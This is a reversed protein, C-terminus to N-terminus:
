TKKEVGLAAMRGNRKKARELVVRADKKAAKDGKLVQELLRELTRLDRESELGAYAHYALNEDRRAEDRERIVADFMRRSVWSHIELDAIRNGPYGCAKAYEIIQQALVSLATELADGPTIATEIRRARMVLEVLLTERRLAEAEVHKFVVPTGKPTTNSM